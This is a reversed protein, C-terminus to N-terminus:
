FLDAIDGNVGDISCGSKSSRGKMQKVEFWVDRPRNSTLAEAMNETIMRTEARKLHRVARNYKTRSLRRM